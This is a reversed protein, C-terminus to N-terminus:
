PKEWTEIKRIRREIERIVDSAREEDFAARVARIVDNLVTDEHPNAVNGGWANVGKGRVAEAPCPTTGEAATASGDGTFSVNWMKRVQQLDPSADCYRCQGPAHLIRSDCHPFRLSAM